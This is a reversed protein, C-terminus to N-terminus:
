RSRDLVRLPAISSCSRGGLLEAGRARHSRSGRASHGASGSSLHKRGGGADARPQHCSRAGGATDRLVLEALLGAAELVHECSDLVLLLRRPQLFAILEAIPDDSVVALGLASAVVSSLALSGSVPSLDIFCVGADYSASTEHAVTLAVTTKGIGGPGVITIFRRRELRRGIDSVAEDRGIVRAIPRPARLPTAAAGADPPTASSSQAAARVVDAVFRYGRGPVAVIYRAGDRGDDLAKRLLAVQARLNEEKVVVTPWARAILEEKGVLEGSGSSM